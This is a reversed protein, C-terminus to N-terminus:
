IWFWFIALDFYPKKQVKSLILPCNNAGILTEVVFGHMMRQWCDSVIIPLQVFHQNKRFDHSLICQLKFEVLKLTISDMSVWSQTVYRGYMRFTYFYASKAKWDGFIQPFLAYIAVFFNAVFTRLDYFDCSNPTLTANKNLFYHTKM